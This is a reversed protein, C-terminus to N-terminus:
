KAGHGAFNRLYASDAPLVITTGGETPADVGFSTRYSQMSRYFDYFQPDRGFSDAYTRAAAADAEARVLAAQRVGEARITAAQQAHTARMRQYAADLPAGDPLTTRTIRVDLVRAGYRRAARDLTDRVDGMAADREPSLLAALRRRGFEDRLASGLLPKLVDALRGEDARAALYLRLPDVIRYRAFADVELRQQDTSLVPQRPMDLDRVRKDVFVVQEILPVHAVLGAGDNGSQRDTGYGNVVRQPQGMRVVLAQGTEPVITFVSACALVLIVLLVAWGIPNRLARSVLTM